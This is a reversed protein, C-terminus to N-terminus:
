AHGIDAQQVKPHLLPLFLRRLPHRIASAGQNLLQADLDAGLLRLRLRLLLPVLLIAGHCARLLRRRQQMGDCSQQAWGRLLLLPHQHLLLLLLMLLLALLLLLLLLLCVLNLLKAGRQKRQRLLLPLLQALLLLVHMRLVLLQCLQLLLHLLLRRLMSLQHNHHRGQSCGHAAQTTTVPVHWVASAVYLRDRLLDRRRLLHGRLGLLLLLLLLLLRGNRAAIAQLTGGLRLCAASALAVRGAQAAQLLELLKHLQKSARGWGRGCRGWVAVIASASPLQPTSRCCRTSAGGSGGRWVAATAPLPGAIM